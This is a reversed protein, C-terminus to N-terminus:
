ASVVPPARDHLLLAFDVDGVQREFEHEIRQTQGVTERDRQELFAGTQRQAGNLTFEVGGLLAAQQRAVM